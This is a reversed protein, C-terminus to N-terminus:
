EVLKYNHNLFHSKDTTETLVGNAWVGYRKDDVNEDNELAFHYYTFEEKEEIKKFDKSVRALLLYKDDIKVEGINKENEEKDEGLDDVLISHAGTIILDEILGNTETKEMKYMHENGLGNIMKNKGIVDIKKYGHKYTKVLDGKKLKEIPVYEEVFKPVLCLIKTGKNFCSPDSSDAISINVPGITVLSSSSTEYYVIYLSNTQNV